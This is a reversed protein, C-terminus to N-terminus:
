LSGVMKKQNKQNKDILNTGMIKFVNIESGRPLTCLSAGESTIALTHEFHASLSGDTTSVTWGDEETFVDYVGQNIMPEIAVVMGSKIKSGEKIKGWNPIQPEEHLNKGIGHGVLSRVVSYGHSEAHKQVTHGIHGIKNGSKAVSIGRYLCEQTVIILKKASESIEGVPWTWATDSYYDDYIVGLDVSLIDGEQLVSKKQPIGHVVQNNLSTCISAPYDEYGLFAPRGGAKQIYEKAFLDLDYTSIGPRINEALYMHTEYAITGSDMIKRVEKSNYVVIGM